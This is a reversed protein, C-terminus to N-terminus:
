DPLRCMFWGGFPKVTAFLPKGEATSGPVNCSWCYQGGDPFSNQLITEPLPVKLRGSWRAGVQGAYTGIDIYVFRNTPTGQVFPGGLSPVMGNAQKLQVLFDFTLDEGRGIQAQVTKYDAGKGEQLGYMTGDAPNQLLIRLRVDKMM